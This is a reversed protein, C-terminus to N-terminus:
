DYDSWETAHALAHRVAIGVGEATLGLMVTSEPLAATIRAALGAADTSPPAGELATNISLIAEDPKLFVDGAVRVNRLVGQEVDLKGGPVKHEGHVAKIPPRLRRIYEARGLRAQDAEDRQHDQEPCGVGTQSRRPGFGPFLSGALRRCPTYPGTGVSM